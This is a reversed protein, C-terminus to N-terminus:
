GRVTFVNELALWIAGVMGADSGLQSYEVRLQRTSLPNARRLTAQRITSLLIHGINSVGGGIFIAEPNFFNVLGALVGGIMRGSQRIIENAARDGAAAAEGVDVATVQGNKQLRRALFSSEGALAKETGLASIAPGAAMIELCGQNGCHCIPGNYDVCIHGVDGACGDSGRYIHKHAIIGCGIGTGVKIFLFNTLGQGAGVKQEGKAMINVDNDVFVRANPFRKQFHKKIPYGEWTPMLPPAILVGPTFEVPGPVGIGAAVLQTPALGQTDLLSQVVEGARELFPEPGIRVDADETSKALINGQFDALAVDMSTAGIDIGAVYGFAPNINLLLPRRGGASKGEGVELLIGANLMNGVIMTLSARSYNMEGSLDTRSLPGNSRIAEVVAAELDGLEFVAENVPLSIAVSDNM